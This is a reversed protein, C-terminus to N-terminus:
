CFAFLSLHLCREGGHWITLMKRWVHLNFLTCVTLVLSDTIFLSQFSVVYEQGNKVLTDFTSNEHPNVTCYLRFMITFEHSEFLFM